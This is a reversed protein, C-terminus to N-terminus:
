LPDNNEEKNRMISDYAILLTKVDEEKDGKYNYLISYPTYNDIDKLIIDVYYDYILKIQKKDAYQNRKHYEKTITYLDTMCFIVLPKIQKILELLIGRQNFTLGIRGRVVPGYVLESFYLRDWIVKRTDHSKLYEIVDDYFTVISEEMHEEDTPEFKLPAKTLKLEKVLYNILTTKGSNDPGEVIIM